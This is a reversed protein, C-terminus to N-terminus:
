GENDLICPINMLWTGGLKTHAPIAPYSERWLQGPISLSILVAEGEGQGEDIINETAKSIESL